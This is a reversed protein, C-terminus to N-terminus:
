RRRINLDFRAATSCTRPRCRCSASQTRSRQARRPRMAASSVAAPRARRIRRRDGGQKAMGRDALWAKIADRGGEVYIISSERAAGFFSDGDPLARWVARAEAIKGKVLLQDIRQEGLYTDQPRLKYAADLWQLAEDTKGQARSIWATTLPGWVNASDLERARKCAASADGFEGLDILEMCRFVHSIFDM